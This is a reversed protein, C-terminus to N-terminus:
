DDVDDELPIDDVIQIRQVQTEEVYDKQGLYQKGLFIAMSANNEALKLQTRRISIKGKANFMAFAQKFNVDKGYTQHLWRSLTDHSISFYGCIEEESCFLSCLKEFQEKDVNNGYLGSKAGKKRPM